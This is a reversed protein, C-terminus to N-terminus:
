VLLVDNDERVEPQGLQVGVTNMGPPKLIEDKLLRDAMMFARRQEESHSSDGM